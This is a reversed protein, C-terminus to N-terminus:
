AKQSAPTHLMLGNMAESLVVQCALRSDPGPDLTVELMAAEFEGPPGLREKWERAVKIHCTGCALAGGCDGDIGAIGNEVALTMLNQGAQGFAERTTGDHAIFTVGIM